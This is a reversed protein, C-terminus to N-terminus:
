FITPINNSHCNHSDELQVCYMSAEHTVTRGVLEHAYIVSATKIQDSMPFFSRDKLNERVVPIYNRM